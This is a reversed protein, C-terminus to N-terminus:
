QRLHHQICHSVILLLSFLKLAITLGIAIAFFPSQIIRVGDYAVCYKSVMAISASPVPATGMSGLTACMVLVIYDGVTPM